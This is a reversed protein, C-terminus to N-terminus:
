KSDIKCIIFKTKDVPYPAAIRMYQGVSVVIGNTEKDGVPVLVEDGVKITPDETRYSYPRLAHPFAVGCFTYIKDDVRAKEAEIRKEEGYHQQRERQLRLGEQKRQEREKQRKEDRRADYAKQYEQESDYYKPDLGYKSGDPVTKRWANKRTYAYQECNREVQSIYDNLGKEWEGIEDQVMGINIAKILPLMHLKFYEASELENYNKCRSIIGDALRNIKKWDDGAQVLGRRFLALATNMLGDQLAAAILANLNSPMEAKADVVKEMFDPHKDMYRALETRYNEPFNYLDDIVSSTLESLSGDAYQIYPLFTTLAWQWVEFSLAINRKAIKCLTNSLEYERYEDEDPLSVPLQFNDKIAQAYLFGGENSLYNAATIKDANDIIFQCCAKDRREAEKNSYCLFENALTYAANFRRKNPYNEEKIEELKDLAPWEISVRLSISPAAGSFGGNRAEELAEMYEDETEYDEPDLGYESGDECTDRWATRAEELAENYEDETEYDEPDLGYESGDECTDRWAIKEKAKALAEEYEEETEYDEPALDFESGDECFDRWSTDVSYDDDDDLISYDIDDDSYDHHEQEKTCEEFIKLALWREVFDEKGDRNFDFMGGFPNDWFSRKGGGGGKKAM